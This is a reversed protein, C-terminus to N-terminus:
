DAKKFAQLTTTTEAILEGKSRTTRVQKVISGPVEDSLWLKYETVEGRPAKVSGTVTKCKMPKGKFKVMDEGFKAGTSLLFRELHAKKVKAPYIHRTPASQV